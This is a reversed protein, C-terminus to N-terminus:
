GVVKSLRYDVRADCSFNLVELMQAKGAMYISTMPTLVKRNLEGHVSTPVVEEEERAGEEARAPKKGRSAAQLSGAAVYPRDTRGDLMGLLPAILMKRLMEATSYFGTRALSTVM